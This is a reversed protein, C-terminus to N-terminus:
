LWKITDAKAVPVHSTHSSTTLASSACAEHPTVLCLSSMEANRALVAAARRRAQVTSDTPPWRASVKCLPSPPAKFTRRRVPDGTGAGAAGSCAKSAGGGAAATASASSPMTPSRSPPAPSSSSFLVAITALSGSSRASSAKRVFSAVGKVRVQTSKASSAKAPNAPTSRVPPRNKSRRDSLPCSVLLRDTRCVVTRRRAPNSRQM